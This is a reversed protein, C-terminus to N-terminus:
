HTDRMDYRMDRIASKVKGKHYFIGVQKRLRVFDLVSVYWCVYVHVERKATAPVAVPREVFFIM